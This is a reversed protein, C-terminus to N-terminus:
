VLAQLALEAPPHLLCAFAKSLRALSIRAAARGKSETDDIGVRKGLIVIGIGVIRLSLIVIM